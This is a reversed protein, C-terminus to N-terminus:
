SYLKPPLQYPNEAAVQLSKHHAPDNKPKAQKRGGRKRNGVNISEESNKKQNNQPPTGVEKEQRAKRGAVAGM